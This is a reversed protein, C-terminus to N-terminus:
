PEREVQTGDSVIHHACGVVVSGEDALQLLTARFLPGAARGFAFGAEEAAIRRAEAEREAPPLTRLDIVPLPRWRPEAIVQVTKDGDLVFTTRLAEHRCVLENFAAEMPAYEIRGHFRFAFVNNYAPNGPALQALFWLREQALALPFRNPTRPQRPIAGAAPGTKKLRQALQRLREPPISALRSKLDSM